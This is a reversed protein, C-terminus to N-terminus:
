YMMKWLGGRSVQKSLSFLPTIGNWILEGMGRAWTKRLSARPSALAAVGAKISATVEASDSGSALLVKLHLLAADIGFTVATENTEKATMATLGQLAKSSVSDSQVAATKGLCDFFIGRHDPSPVKGTTLLKTMETVVKLVDGEIKSQQALQKFLAIASTRVSESTSRLGNLLPDQLSSSFIPSPDFSLSKVLNVLV